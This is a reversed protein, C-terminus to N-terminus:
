DGEMILRAKFRQLHLAWTCCMSFQNHLTKDTIKLRGWQSTFSYLNHHVVREPQLRNKTRAKFQKEKIKRQQM